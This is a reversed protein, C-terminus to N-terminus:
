CHFTAELQQSSVHQNRFVVLSTPSRGKPGFSTTSQNGASAVKRLGTSPRDSAVKGPGTMPAVMPMMYQSAMVMSAAAPGSYMQASPLLSVKLWEKYHPNFRLATAQLKKTWHAHLEFEAHQNQFPYAASGRFPNAGKPKGKFGFLDGIKGLVVLNRAPRPAPTGRLPPPM